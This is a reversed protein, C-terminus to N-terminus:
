PSLMPFLYSYRLSYLYQTLSSKLVDDLPIILLFDRTNIPTKEYIDIHTKITRSIIPDYNSTNNDAMKIIHKIVKIYQVLVPGMVQM